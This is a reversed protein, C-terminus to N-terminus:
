QVGEPHNCLVYLAPPLGDDVSAEYHMDHGDNHECFHICETSGISVGSRHGCPTIARHGDLLRFYLRKSM